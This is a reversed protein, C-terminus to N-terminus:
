TGQQGLNINLFSVLLNRQRTNPLSALPMWSYDLMAELNDKQYQTPMLELLNYVLEQAHALM